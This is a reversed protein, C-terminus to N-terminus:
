IIKITELLNPNLTMCRNREFVGAYVAKATAATHNSAIAAVEHAYQQANKSAFRPLCDEDLMLETSFHERVHRM